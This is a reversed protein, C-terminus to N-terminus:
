YGKYKKKRLEYKQFAVNVAKMNNPKNNVERDIELEENVFWETALDIVRKSSISDLYIFVDSINLNEIYEIDFYEM